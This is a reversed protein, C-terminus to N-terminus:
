SASIEFKRAVEATVGDENELLWVVEYQGAELSEFVGSVQAGAGSALERGALDSILWGLVTGTESTQLLSASSPNIHEAAGTAGEFLVSAEPRFESPAAEEAIVAPPTNAEQAMDVLVVGGGVVATACVAAVIIKAAVGSMFPASASASTMFSAAEGNSAAAAAMEVKLRSAHFIQELPLAAQIEEAEMAVAQSVALGIGYRSHRGIHESTINHKKLMEKMKKRARLLNTSVTSVTVNLAEAIDRYNLDDYYYLILTRRQLEPLAHILANVTKNADKYDLAGEPTADVHEDALVETYDDIDATNREAKHKLNHDYCTNAIMRYLWSRFAEPSKLGGIGQYLKVAIEQVVDAVANKDDLLSNTHYAIAKINQRYLTEFADVDGEAAQKLIQKQRDDM